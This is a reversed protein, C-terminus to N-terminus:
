ALRSGTSRAAAHRGPGAMSPLDMSRLNETGRGICRIGSNAVSAMIDIPLIPLVLAEARDARKLADLAAEACFVAAAAAAELPAAAPVLPPAPELAPEEVLKADVTAASVLRTLSDPSLSNSLLKSPFELAELLTV